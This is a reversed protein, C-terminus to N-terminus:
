RHCNICGAKGEFLAKGRIVEESLATKDGLLYQDLLTDRQVLTREFASIARWVDQILPWASRGGTKLSQISLQIPIRGSM